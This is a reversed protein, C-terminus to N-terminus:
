QEDGLSYYLANDDLISEDALRRIAVWGPIALKDAVASVIVGYRSAWPDRSEGDFEVSATLLAKDLLSPPCLLHAAIDCYLDEGTQMAPFSCAHDRLALHAAVHAMMFRIRPFTAADDVSGRDCIIAVRNAEDFEVSQRVMGTTIALRFRFG